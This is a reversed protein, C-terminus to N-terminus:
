VVALPLVYRSRAKPCGREVVPAFRSSACPPFAIIPSGPKHCVLFPRGHRGTGLLMVVVVRVLMPRVAPVRRNPVIPMDVIQMIAMHVMHVAIMNVLVGYRDVSGIRHTAGRLNTAGTMRVPRVTTVLRDRMPVMDVIKNVAMQVMRMAAMAVVM